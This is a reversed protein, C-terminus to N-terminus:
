NESDKPRYNIRETSAKKTHEDEDDVERALTGPFQRHDDEEVV